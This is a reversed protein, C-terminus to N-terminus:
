IRSILVQWPLSCLSIELDPRTPQKLGPPLPFYFFFIIVPWTWTWTLTGKGRGKGPYVTNKRCVM